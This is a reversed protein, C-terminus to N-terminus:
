ALAKIKQRLYSSSIGATRPLTIVKKGSEECWKVAWQFGAHIQDEGVAFIDFNIQNIITDIDNYIVVEDVLRLARILECRIETSYIIEAQPKYKLISKEDQVAVILRAEKDRGLLRAKRFLELHGYHFLDFVGVTFVTNM